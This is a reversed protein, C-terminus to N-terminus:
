RLELTALHIKNIASDFISIAKEALQNNAFVPNGPASKNYDLIATLASIHIIKHRYSIIKKLENIENSDICNGFSLNYAKSYARKCEDYNQFNIKKKAILELFSVNKEHAENKMLEHQGSEREPNSFVRNILNEINPKIGERDLEIFRKKSYAEFGTVLTSITLNCVINEYSFGQDSKGSKLINVAKLIDKWSEIATPELIQKGDVTVHPQIVEVGIDGVQIIGGDITAMFQKESLHGQSVIMKSEPLRTDICLAIETPTWSFGYFMKNCKQVNKLDITAIHTGMGPSSKYFNLKMLDDRELIFVHAGSVVEFIKGQKIEENFVDECEFTFEITGEPIKIAEKMQKIINDPLNYM